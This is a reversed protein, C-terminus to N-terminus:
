LLDKYNDPTQDPLERYKFREPDEVYKFADPNERYRLDYKM